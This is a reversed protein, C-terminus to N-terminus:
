KELPFAAATWGNIGKALSNVNTYGLMRMAMMALSGRHGSQCVTIVAATKDAPLLTMDALLNNIPINVSGNIYGTKFDEATRTDIVVPSTTSTIATNVDAAGMSYFGDPLTSLFSNLNAFRIPDVTPATGAVADAPKGTEVPFEAKTWAGFGGGLNLVNTYGLFRLSAMAMAGRHGSGCYIVIPQDQAPLKDLNQLLTRIPLNIAGAIFGSEEIESGERVDVLFPASGADMQGKLVDGKITYFDAPMNTLFDTWVATWDIIGEVAYSAAKWAGLGGGMNLVNSYGLLRLGEVAISGRLGSGCHLIIAADKAPLKDLSTFLTPLPINISGNIYGDKEIEDPNRLDILTPPTASDLLEKVKDVKLALFGDPLTSMSEDLMIYLAQDAIVPTSIAQPAEPMSGTEVPLGAKTWGGLGGSMNLVNTYGLIRLVGMLMGGRQGSGCYVIIRTDLAPLKDLNKLVDRVPINVAGKIYGDKELESADRVDLLFPPTGEAMATSVDAPKIGGFGTPLSNVMAAYMIAVDPAVEVAPAETVVPAVTLPAVVETAQPTTGCASLVVSFIILLALLTNFIKKTM